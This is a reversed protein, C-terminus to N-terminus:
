AREAGLGSVLPFAWFIGSTRVRLPPGPPACSEWRNKWDSLPHQDHFVIRGPPLQERLHELIQAKGYVAGGIRSCGQRHQAFSGIGQRHHIDGQIWPIVAVPAAELHQVGQRGM